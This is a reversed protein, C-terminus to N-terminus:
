AFANFILGSFLYSSLKRKRGDVADPTQPQQLERQRSQQTRRRRSEAERQLQVPDPQATAPLTQPAYNSGRFVRKDWMINKPGVGPPADRYKARQPVARPDATYTYPQAM